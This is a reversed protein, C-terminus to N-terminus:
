DLDIGKAENKKQQPWGRKEYILRKDGKKM